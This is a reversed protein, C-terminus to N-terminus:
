ERPVAGNVKEGSRDAEDRGDKVESPKRYIKDYNDGDSYSGESGFFLAM